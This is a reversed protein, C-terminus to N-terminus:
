AQDSDEQSTPETAEPPREEDKKTGLVEKLIGEIKAGIKNGITVWDDDPSADAWKGLGTKVQLEVRQGIEEWSAG